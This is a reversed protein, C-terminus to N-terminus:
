LGACNGEEVVVIGSSEQDHGGYSFELDYLNISSHYLGFGLCELAKNVGTVSYLKIYVTVKHRNGCLQDMQINFPNVRAVKIPELTPTEPLITAAPQQSFIAFDAWGLSNPNFNQPGGIMASGLAHWM